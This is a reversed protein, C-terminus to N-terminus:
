RDGHTILRPCRLGAFFGRALPSESRLPRVDIKVNSDPQSRLKWTAVVVPVAAGKRAAVGPKLDAADLLHFLGFDGSRVIEESLGAIGRVKVKAGRAKADKAPWTVALWEEPTNTYTRGVGDVEITVESVDPSVSHLNVELEVSPAKPDAGFTADTIKASRRLCTLFESTYAVQAKFRRTPVFENGQRELSGKLSQDYFAWLQGKEPKFFETFDEIKADTPANDVFPYNGELKTSWTKWASMEWLGGAAGGADHLVSAWSFAVPDLLLPSMLPRTFADQDALLATTARYAQEFEGTLAKPDPAAKADKLDTLVGILKRLIAQYQSLGTPPPPPAGPVAAAPMGFTVIPKFALEVPSAPKDRDLLAGADLTVPQGLLKQKAAEKAKGAAQELLSGRGAEADSVELEVNDALIRALRLYPWEPESLALLEELSGEANVPRAVVLDGLFERWADRYRDFYIQRLASVEKNIQEDPIREETGLVWGESTLKTREEDLLRRIKAWGLKTYAGDVKVGKKSSVFEAVSGYFITERRIPAIETNTDRVLTEYLRGIQPTRLLESRVYSVLREDRQAPAVGYTKVLRLYEEVNLQLVAEDEPSTVHTLEAWLRAIRPAAWEVDLHERETLMLYKKLDDYRRNFEDPSRKPDAEISRLRDELTGKVPRLLARQMISVYEDRLPAYLSSGTYMGWRYGVPPGDQRWAELEHLRARLPEVRALKDTVPGSANWDVQEAAQAVASTTRVLERNKLYSTVAPVAILGALAAAGVGIGVRTLLQRRAEGRTRAAVFRDPFIVRRFLDTLFYSKADARPGADPATMRLGFARVMGGMVRDLPLGEQTGSTFYAGRFLPTEQFNNKRLLAGVFEALAGKVARMELPFQQVRARQRQGRASALRRLANGHLAELLLDFEAEFAKAPELNKQDLPFTVGWIQARESKKLDEFTEVFGAILDVKTFVVYVPVVMQLRTMVEDVRSRLTRATAEVQEETLGIVDAISIAVLVGNVPTKSRYRRLMDLFATWEEHDDVQTAFRGATDLIIAENTFWWDCNKTGGVGRLAGTADPIPFDLGSHRIATTKGAGPPGVIMYWPLAYLASEGSGAGLRSTKLAALGKKFQAHLENIEARRDPRANAAQQEAQKMLERELARAAAKARLRQVVYYGVVFLVAGVTIAIRIWLALEFLWGAAWAAIVVVVALIWAWM